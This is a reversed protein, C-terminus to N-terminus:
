RKDAPEALRCIYRMKDQARTTWSQWNAITFNFVLTKCRRRENKSGLIMSLTRPSIWLRWHIMKSPSTSGSHTSFKFLTKSSLLNNVNGFPSRRPIGALTLSVLDIFLLIQIHGEFYSFKPTNCLPYPRLFTSCNCSGQIAYYLAGCSFVARYSEISHNFELIEYVSDFTVVAKYPTIFPMVIFFQETVKM